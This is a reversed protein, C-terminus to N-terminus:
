TDRLGDDRGEMMRRFGCPVCRFPRRNADVLVIPTRGFSVVVPINCDECHFAQALHGDVLVPFTVAASV